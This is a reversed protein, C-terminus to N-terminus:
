KKTPRPGASFEDGAYLRYRYGIRYLPRASDAVNITVSLANMKGPYRYMEMLDKLDRLAPNVLFGSRAIPRVLLYRATEHNMSEITMTIKAPKYLFERVKGLWTSDIEAELWVSGQDSPLPLPEGWGAMGERLLRHPTPPPRTAKRKWLIYEREVAVPEYDRLIVELAGADDEAALRDDITQYKFIVFAPATPGLYFDRNRALLLPTYASYGQFVPRPRYNLDNLLVIAQEYGFVDVSEQGILRKMEPLANEQQIRSLTGDLTARFGSPDIFATANGVIRESVLPLLQGFFQPRVLFLLIYPSVLAILTVGLLLRRHRAPPRFTAWAAPVVFLLFAFLSYLHSRDARVIGEKWALFLGAGFVLLIALDRDKEESAWALGMLLSGGLLLAGFGSWFALWPGYISMAEAYGSAVECAGRLFPLVGSLQQGTLHWLSGVCVLYTAVLVTARLRKRKTLAYVAVALLSVACLLFFTFKTLSVVAFLVGMGLAVLPSLQSEIAYCATLIIAFLYVADVSVPSFFVINVIFWWRLIARLRLAVAVMLVAFVGKLLLEFGVRSALLYGSYTDTTIYGLPGYTFIVDKGFQLGKFAFYSLVGQWSQELEPRFGRM